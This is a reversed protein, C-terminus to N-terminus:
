ALNVRCYTRQATLLELYGFEGQEYAIRTIELSHKADPPIEDVYRRVQQSASTYRQYAETLRAQLELEVRRVECDAASLEAQAKAINGQNRNYLQWPLGIQFIAVPDRSANNYRVGGELDVNPIREACQRAHRVQLGLRQRVLQLKASNAEVRYGV